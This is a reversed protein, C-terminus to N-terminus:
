YVGFDHLARTIALMNEQPAKPPLGCGASFIYGNPLKKGTEIVTKTAAYIEDPTGAQIIKTDLNGVIIDNPMAAAAKQLDVEVGFSAFGPRDQGLPIESWYPLNLNQDGCIHKFINNFGLDFLEQHMEINYPMVFKEFVKPSILQNSSAPEASWVLIDETGYLSKWYKMMKVLFATSMKLVHHAVEPKKLVWRSLNSAGVVNSSFTFPGEAQIILRWPREANIKLVRDLFDKQRPIMGANAIDAPMALEMAAEPTDVAHKTVSPAQGFEGEPLKVTGGFEWAGVSGYALYPAYLFNYTQCAKGFLELLLQPDRYVLGAGYGESVSAFVSASLGFFLIKDTKEGELLAKIREKDNM